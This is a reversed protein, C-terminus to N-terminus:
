SWTVWKTDLHEGTPPEWRPAPLGMAVAAEHPPGAPPLPSPGRIPRGRHDTFVLGDPTTPDGSIGLRGAHHLRHHAPCLCCLNAPVSLGGDQAHVLHHVHLWRRRGCGPVRCRGDRQEVLSRLRDDVTRRRAFVHIPTGKRELVVRGTADCALYDRLSAPLLSGLHLRAREPHDVDVHFIVQYRHAPLGGTGEINSLAVEAMHVLADSWGITADLGHDDHDGHGARFLADRSAELAKQVLAGEDPALLVRAWWRGDESNGFATERRGPIDGLGDGADGDEGGLPQRDPVPDPVPEPAVISPLIRRLQGVTSRRALETVEADHAAGVHACMVGVQDESLAGEAFAGAAAPLDALARAMAVLRRARSNTVGCRLAVWHEITTIGDGQWGGDELAGAIAAVVEATAANLLGMAACLRAEPGDCVVEVEKGPRELLSIGM